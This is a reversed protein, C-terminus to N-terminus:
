ACGGGFLCQLYLVCAFAGRWTHALEHSIEGWSSQRRLMGTRLQHFLTLVARALQLSTMWQNDLDSWWLTVNTNRAKPCPTNGAFVQPLSSWFYSHNLCLGLVRIHTRM